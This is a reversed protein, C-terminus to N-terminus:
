TLTWVLFSKCYLSDFRFNVSSSPFSLSSRSIALILSVSFECHTASSVWFIDFRSNLTATDEQLVSIFFFKKLGLFQARLVVQGGRYSFCVPHSLKLVFHGTEPGLHTCKKGYIQFKKPSPNNNNISDATKIVHKSRKLCMRGHFLKQLLKVFNACTRERTVSFWM